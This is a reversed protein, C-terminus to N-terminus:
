FTSNLIFLLVECIACQQHNPRLHDNKCPIKKDWKLSPCRHSLDRLRYSYLMPFFLLKREVDGLGM